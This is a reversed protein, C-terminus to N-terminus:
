RRRRRVRVLVLGVLALWALSADGGGVARCGCGQVMTRGSGEGDDGADVGADAEVNSGADSPPPMMTGADPPPPPPVDLVTVRVQLQDDPPGGQGADSFWAVGEQVVNFFQPYDGPTAPARVVFEFRGTSGPPTSAHVTAARNPGIWGPGAIPSAVDRPQTTGLFTAGPTWTETGTNRLEIHGAVEEGPRLEFPNRALPFTQNVYEARFRPTTPTSGAARIRDLRAHLHDGPCSTTAGSHDRHGIVTSSNVPIGYLGSLVRVLSGGADVMGDPPVFPTWDSCGSTHFCGIFSIGINGSNHSAVHTGLLEISRGEWLRGDVSVLFHYGIDCWGQTDMHYAQIGRIRTAPDTSSPTVTHHIAMRYKAADLGTCRTARAGWSERAIVGAAALESRLAAQSRGVDRADTSAEEISAPIVASWTIGAVDALASEAIRVEASHAVFGLEVRVVAQDGESWTPSLTRWPGPEGSADIGRAEIRPLALGAERLTVLAGIRTAGSPAELRTSVLHADELSWERAIESATLAMEPVHEPDTPALAPPETACGVVVLAFGLWSARRM